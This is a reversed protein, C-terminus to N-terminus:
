RRTGVHYRTQDALAADLRALWQMAETDHAMTNRVHGRVQLPPMLYILVDLLRNCSGNRRLPCDGLQRNLGCSIPQPSNSLDTPINVSQPLSPM